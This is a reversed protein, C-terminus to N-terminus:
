RVLLLPAHSFVHMSHLGSDAVPHAAFVSGVTLARHLMAASQFLSKPRYYLLLFLAMLVNSTVDAGSSLWLFHDDLQQHLHVGARKPGSRHLAPLQRAPDGQLAWRTLRQGGRKLSM